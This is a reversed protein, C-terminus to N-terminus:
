FLLLLLGWVVPPIKRYAGFASLSSMTAWIPKPKSFSSSSQGRSSGVLRSLSSTSYAVSLPSPVKPLLQSCFSCLFIKTPRCDRPPPACSFALQASTSSTDKHCSNRDLTFGFQIAFKASLFFKWIVSSLHGKGCSQPGHLALPAGPVFTANTTITSM